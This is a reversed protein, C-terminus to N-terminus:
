CAAGPATTLENELRMEATASLTWANDHTGDVFDTAFAILPFFVPYNYSVTVSVRQNNTSTGVTYTCASATPGSNVRGATFGQVNEALLGSGGTLEAETWTDLEAESTFTGAAARRAAERVANTLGMQAELVFAFQFIAALLLVLIPTILALEVLAQGRDTPDAARPRSRHLLHV